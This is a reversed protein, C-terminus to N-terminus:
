LFRAQNYEFLILKINSQYVFYSCNFKFIISNLGKARLGFCTHIVHATQPLLAAPDPAIATKEQQHEKIGIPMAGRKYMQRLLNLDPGGDNSHWQPWEPEGGRCLNASNTDFLTRILPSPHCLTITSRSPLAHHYLTITSRSPPTHHHLTITSHSPPVHHYLTILHPFTSTTLTHHLFLLQFRPSPAQKHSALAIGLRTGLKPLTAM